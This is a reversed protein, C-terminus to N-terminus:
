KRRGVQGQIPPSWPVMRRPNFALDMFLFVEKENGLYIVEEKKVHNTLTFRGEGVTDEEGGGGGVKV